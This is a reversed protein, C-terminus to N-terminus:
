EEDEYYGWLECAFDRDGYSQSETKGGKLLYTGCNCGLDEDAYQVYVTLKPFQRSLEKMAEFPTSWATQFSLNISSEEESVDIEYADWKTGWKALRWDYWDKYGFKRINELAKKGLEAVRDIEEKSWKKMWENPVNGNKVYEMGWVTRSGSEIELSEPMPIITQFSFKRTNAEDEYRYADIIQERCLSLELKDGSIAVKNIVHNPM